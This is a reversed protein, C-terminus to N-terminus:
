IKELAEKIRIALPLKTPPHINNEESIDSSIVTYVNEVENEIEAQAKQVLAWGEPHPAKSFNHIQVVVFPLTDDKLDERWRKIFIKLLDKYIKSVELPRGNSEGQYWVVAKMTLPIVDKFKGEYLFGDHNWDIYEQPRKDGTMAETAIEFDTGKLIDKPIWSQICSAGRYCAILGVAHGSEKQLRNAILWGLASWQSVCGKAKIWKLPLPFENKEREIKLFFARVMSNDEYEEEPTNTAWLGFEINSQGALLYVDGFYIDELLQEEGNLTVKMTYPGGYDHAPMELLWDDGKSTTVGVSSDIEVSVTGIGTGYFRIPKNAQLVAGNCFLKNIEM